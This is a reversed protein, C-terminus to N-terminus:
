AALTCCSTRWATQLPEVLALAELTAARDRRVNARVLLGYAYTYLADLSVTLDGAAPNLTSRLELVIDQAKMLRQGALPHQEAEQLRAAAKLAGVCADFLMATLEAPSATLVRETLYRDAVAANTIPLTM